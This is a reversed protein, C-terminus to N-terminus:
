KRTFIVGTGTLRPMLGGRAATVLKAQHMFSKFGEGGYTGQGTRYIYYIYIHM